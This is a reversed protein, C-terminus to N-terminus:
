HVYGQNIIYFRVCTHHDHNIITTGDFSLFLFPEFPIGFLFIVFIRPIGKIPWTILFTLFEFNKAKIM